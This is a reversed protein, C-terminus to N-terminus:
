ATKRQPNYHAAGVVIADYTREAKSSRVTKAMTM